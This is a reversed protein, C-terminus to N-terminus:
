SGTPFGELFPKFGVECRIRALHDVLKNLQIRNTAGYTLYRVRIHPPPLGLCYRDPNTVTIGPLRPHGVDIILGIHDIWLQTLLNFGWEQLKLLCVIVAVRSSYSRQQSLVSNFNPRPLPQSGPALGLLFHKFGVECRVRALHDVLQNCQIRGTAGHALYCVRIDSFPLALSHNDINTVAIGPLSAHGVDIVLSLKFLSIIRLAARVDVVRRKGLSRRRSSITSDLVLTCTACVSETMM